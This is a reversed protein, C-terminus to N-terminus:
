RPTDVAALTARELHSGKLLFVQSPTLVAKIRVDQEDQPLQQSGVLEDDFVTAFTPIAPDILKLMRDYWGGGQGLRGGCGDIALAPAIVVEVRQIAEAPLVPGSPEPPRGPARTQLDEVGRYFAWNRRLGPGLAPVLVAIERARLRELLPQTPPEFGTSVYLAVSRADGIAQLGSVALAEGLSDLESRSRTARHKRIVERLAQKADETEYGVTQPLRLPERM